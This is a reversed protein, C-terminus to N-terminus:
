SIFRWEVFREKMFKNGYHKDIIEEIRNSSPKNDHREKWRLFCFVTVIFNVAMFISFIICAINWQRSEMHSLIRDFLPLLLQFVLGVLGWIITMKLCILGMFNMPYHAYTWAKM